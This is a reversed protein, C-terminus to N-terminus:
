EKEIIFDSGTALVVPCDANVFKGTTMDYEGIFYLSFDAPHKCMVNDGGSAIIDGFQRTAVADNDILVPVGFSAMKNDRISYVRKKM